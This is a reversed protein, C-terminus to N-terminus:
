EDDAVDELRTKSGEKKQPLPAENSRDYKQEGFPLLRVDQPEILLEEEDVHKWGYDEIGPIRTEVVTADYHSGLQPNSSESCHLSTSVTKTHAPKLDLLLLEEVVEHGDHREPYKTNENRNCYNRCTPKGISLSRRCISCMYIVNDKLAYCSFFKSGM